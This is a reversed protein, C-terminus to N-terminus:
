RRQAIEKDMKAQEKRADAESLPKGDRAVLKKYASGDIQFHDWTKVQQPKNVRRVVTEEQWTYNDLNRRHGIERELAQRVIQQVDPPPAAAFLLLAAAALM